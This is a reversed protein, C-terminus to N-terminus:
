KSSSLLASWSSVMAALGPTCRDHIGLMVLGAYIGKYRKGKRRDCSRRYYRARVEITDGSRLQIRVTEFGESKMRGPCTGILEKEQAIQDPSSLTAQFKKQFSEKRTKKLFSFINPAL